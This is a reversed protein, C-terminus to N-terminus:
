ASAKSKDQYRPSIIGTLNRSMDPLLGQSHAQHLEDVLSFVLERESPNYNSRESPWGPSLVGDDRCGVHCFQIIKQDAQLAEDLRTIVFLIGFSLSEPQDSVEPQKIRYVMYKQFTAPADDFETQKENPLSAWAKGAIGAEYLIRQHKAQIDLLLFSQQEFSVPSFLTESEFIDEPNPLSEM